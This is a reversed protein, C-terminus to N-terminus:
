LGHARVMCWTCFITQAQHTCPLGMGEQAGNYWNATENQADPIASTAAFLAVVATAWRNKINVSMGGGVEYEETFREASTASMPASLTRRQSLGRLCSSHM